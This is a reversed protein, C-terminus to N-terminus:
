PVSVDGAGREIYIFLLRRGGIMGQDSQGIDHVRGMQRGAGGIGLHRDRDFCRLKDGIIQEIALRRIDAIGIRKRRRPYRQGLRFSCEGILKPENAVTLLPM